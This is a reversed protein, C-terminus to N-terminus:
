KNKRRHQSLTKCFYEFKDLAGEGKSWREVEKLAIRRTKCILVAQELSQRDNWHYFAALRDKVSDVPKLLRLKGFKTQIIATEEVFEYGITLPSPPFEVFYPSGPSDYHRFSKTRKFGIKAMIPDIEKLSYDPMVFDMDGSKYQNDSYITVCTGGVLVVKIGHQDLLTCILAAMEEVSMKKWHYKKM